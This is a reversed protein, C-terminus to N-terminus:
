YLAYNRSMTLSDAFRATRFARVILKELDDVRFEDFSEGGHELSRRIQEITASPKLLGLLEQLEENLDAIRDLSGLIDEAIAPTIRGATLKKLAAIEDTIQTLVGAPASVDDGAVKMRRIRQGYQAMSSELKKVSAKANAISSIDSAIMRAEALPDMISSQIFDMVDEAVVSGARVSALATRADSLLQAMNQVQEAEGIKQRRAQLQAQQVARNTQSLEREVIVLARPLRSLMELQPFIDNLKEAIEPMKEVIERVEDYTTSSEVQRAMGLAQDVLDIISSDVVVKQKQLKEIQKKRAELNRVFNKAGQKMQKLARQQMQEDLQPASNVSIEIADRLDNMMDGYDRMKDFASTDSIKLAEIEKRVVLIKQLLPENKSRKASRELERLESLFNKRTREMDRLERDTIKRLEVEVPPKTSDPQVTTSGCAVGRPSCWGTTKGAADSCWTGGSNMCSDIESKKTEIPPCAAITTATSGNACTVVAEPAPCTEAQRVVRGGPCTKFEDKTETVSTRRPCSSFSTVFTKGDPCSMQGAPPMAQCVDASCWGGMGSSSSCWYKGKSTCDAQSIPAAPCSSGSPVESRDWCSMYGSKPMTPCQMTAMQCYGGNAAGGSMATSNCWRGSMDECGDQTTPWTGYSPSTTVTPCNETASSTCWGGSMGGQSKCWKRGNTVCSSEDNIPCSSSGTACWGSGQQSSCWQGSIAKCDPENYAYCTTNPAYACSGGGSGNKCWKNGGSTCKQEDTQTTTTNTTDTTTNTTNTTTNTTTYPCSDTCWGSTTSTGPSICWTKGELKCSPEDYAPCKYSADSSCWGSGMSNKCWKGSQASCDSETYAPCKSTMCYPSGQPATCWNAGTARCGAETSTDAPATSTTQANVSGIFFVAAFLVGLM